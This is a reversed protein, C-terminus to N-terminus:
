YRVGITSAEGYKEIIMIIKCYNGLKEFSRRVGVM